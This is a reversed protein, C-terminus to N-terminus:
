KEIATIKIFIKKVSEEYLSSSAHIDEPIRDPLQFNNLLFGNSNLANKDPFLICDYNEGLIEKLLESYRKNYIAQSADNTYEEGAWATAAKASLMPSAIWHFSDIKQSRLRTIKTNYDSIQRKWSNIVSNEIENANRIITISKCNSKIFKDDIRKGSLPRLVGFAYNGGLLGTYLLSKHKSHFWSNIQDHYEKKFNTLLNDLNSWDLSETTSGTELMFHHLCSTNANIKQAAIHQNVATLTSPTHSDGYILISLKSELENFVTQKPISQNISFRELLEEECIINRNVETNPAPSQICGPATDTEKNGSQSKLFVDMVNEVAESRVSRLNAEYWSSHNRPNTILEYSPFYDIHDNTDSLYGAVSRLTSKSYTNASLIHKDSYTATLPVPSVTLLIRYPKGNRIRLITAEFAEFDNIIDIFNSNIWSFKERDYEGSIVGPATPYVITEEKNTWTETLGLTFIFVEMEKFMKLVCALHNRRSQFVEEKTRYGNPSINPRQSDFYRGEKEWEERIEITGLAEQSLQRLQKVTYINGYRASFMGYGNQQHESQQLSQPPTEVELVNFNHSKLTRHIHQAFCSGATAIPIKKSPLIKKEFIDLIKPSNLTVGKKWFKSEPLNAYPNNREEPM